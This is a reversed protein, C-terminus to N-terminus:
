PKPPAPVGIAGSPFTTVSGAERSLHLQYDLALQVYARVVNGSAPLDVIV